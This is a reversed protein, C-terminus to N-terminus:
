KLIKIVKTYEVPRKKSLSKEITEACFSCSMGGIDFQVQRKSTM